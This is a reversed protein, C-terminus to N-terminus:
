KESGFIPEILSGTRIINANVKIEFAAHKYLDQWNNKVLEWSKYKHRFLYDSVGFIDCGNEFSQELVHSLQQKILDECAKNIEKLEQTNQEDPKVVEGLNGKVDIDFTIVLRKKKDGEIKAKLETSSGLIDVNVNPLMIEGKDIKGIGWLYGRTEDRNMVYVLKGNSFVGSGTVEFQVKETEPDEQSIGIIPMVSAKFCSNSEMAFQLLELKACSSMAVQNELLITMEQSPISGLNTAKDLLKWADIETMVMAIDYRAEDDRFFYDMYDFIGNEAASRGIVVIQNHAVYLVRNAENDANDVAELMNKGAQTINFFRKGGEFEETKVIQTTFLVNDKSSDYDIGVGLVIALSDFKRKDATPSCGTVIFIVFTLFLALWRKVSKNVM